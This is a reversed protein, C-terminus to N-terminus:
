LSSACSCTAPGRRPSRQPDGILNRSQLGGPSPRRDRAGSAQPYPPAACDVVPPEQWSGLFLLIEEPKAQSDMAPREPQPSSRVQDQAIKTAPDRHREFLDVLVEIAKLYEPDKSRAYAHAWTAIYYGGHRPFENGGGPGHRDYAAHRSFNGTTKNSIQHDWLGRAFRLCAQEDLGYCRDWLVWPRYLEHTGSLAREEVFAWHCHEGWALLGTQKSQCNGLFWRLTKDSEAAYRKEGTLDTLAYLIQYLNLDHMPNAGKWPRDQGRIGAIGPPTADFIRHTTRDLTTAFLPSHVTGYTDRGKEIMTDAYAKVVALYDKPTADAAAAAQCLALLGTLALTSRKM